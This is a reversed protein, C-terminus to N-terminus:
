VIEIYLLEFLFNLENFEKNTRGARWEGDYALAPQVACMM